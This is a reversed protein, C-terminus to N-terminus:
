TAAPGDPTAVPISGSVTTGAGVASTIEVDGALAAIRDAIGQLGTGRSVAAADFGRGDDHVSFTLHGNARGIAIRASSADAYKAINQLGELCSFYVAAEIEPAFRGLDIQASVEVPVSSRTAQAELAAALGKDALLPPYIGRALDRLDELAAHADGQLATMMEHGKAPDGDIVADALKLKVAIAVLQQQAGDHINRELRRREEDQVTVLRRQAARLEDLSARLEDTLSVNRLLSGAQSALQSVLTRDTGNMREGPAKRVGLSGLREGRFEVPFVAEREGDDAVSADPDAGVPWTAALRHAGARELWVDVREAGLGEGVATAMRVLVDDDAYTAGVREVFTGLIEYPAARRGYVIRDALRRSIRYIPWVLVGLIFVSVAGAADGAVVNGAVLVVTARGALTLVAFAALLMVLVLAGLVTKRVVIDLDWLRYRLVAIGIAAPVAAIGFAALISTAFDSWGLATLVESLVFMVFLLAAAFAMWRIQQREAGRAHRFRAILSAASIALLAIFTFFAFEFLPALPELAAIYLPNATGYADEFDPTSVLGVVLLAVLAFTAWLLWRWRGPAPRGDPFLQLLLLLGPLLGFIWGTDGIGLLWGEMSGRHGHALRFQAGEGALFSLASIGSVYLLLAGIRNGPMRSAILAGVVGYGFFVVIFLGDEALAGGRAVKVASGGAALVVFGALALWPWRSPRTLPDAASM